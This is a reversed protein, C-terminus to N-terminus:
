HYLPTGQQSPFRQGPRVHLVLSLGSDWPGERQPGPGPPPPEPVAAPPLGARRKGLRLRTREKARNNGRAPENTGTAFPVCTRGTRRPEKLWEGAARPAPSAGPGTVRLGGLPPSAPLRPPPSPPPCSGAPSSSGLHRPCSSSGQFVPVAPLLDPTHSAPAPLRASGRRTQITSVGEGDGGVRERPKVPHRLCCHSCNQCSCVCRANRRCPRSGSM